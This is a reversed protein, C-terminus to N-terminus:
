SCYEAEKEKRASFELSQRLLDKTLTTLDGNGSEFVVVRYNKKKFQEYLPILQERVIADSVESKTLWVSVYKTQKHINIEM